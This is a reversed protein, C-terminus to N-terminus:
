CTTPNIAIAAIEGATQLDACSNAVPARIEPISQLSLRVRRNHVVANLASQDHNKCAATNAAFFEAAHAMISRWTFRSPLLAGAVRIDFPPLFRSLEPLRMTTLATFQPFDSPVFKRLGTASVLTPLTFNTDAVYCVACKSIMHKQQNRAPTIAFSCQGERRDQVQEV